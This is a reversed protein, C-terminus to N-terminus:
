MFLNVGVPAQLSQTTSTSPLRSRIVEQLKGTSFPIFTKVLVWRTILALFDITSINSEM